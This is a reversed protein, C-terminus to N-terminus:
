SSVDIPLGADGGSRVSGFVNRCGTWGGCDGVPVGWATACDTLQLGGSLFSGLVRICEGWSGGVAAIVWRSRRRHDGLGAKAEVVQRKRRRTSCRRCDGRLQGGWNRSSSSSSRGKDHKCSRPGM